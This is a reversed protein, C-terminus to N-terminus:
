QQSEWTQGLYGSRWIALNGSQWAIRVELPPSAGVRIACTMKREIALSSRVSFDSKPSPCPGELVEKFTGTRLRPGMIPNEFKASQCAM